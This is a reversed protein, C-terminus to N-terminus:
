DPYNASNTKRLAFFNFNQYCVNEDILNLM